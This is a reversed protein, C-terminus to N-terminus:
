IVVKLFIFGIMTFFAGALIFLGGGQAFTHIRIDSLDEPDYSLKVRKGVRLPPNQAVKSRVEYSKDEVMFRVTPYVNGKNDMKRDETVEGVTQKWHYPPKMSKMGLLILLPGVLLFAATLLYFIYMEEM